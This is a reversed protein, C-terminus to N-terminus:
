RTLQRIERRPGHYMSEVQKKVVNALSMRSRGNSRKKKKLPRVKGKRKRKRKRKRADVGIWGWRLRRRERGEKRRWGGELVECEEFRGLWGVLWGVM